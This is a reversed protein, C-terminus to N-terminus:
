LWRVNSLCKQNMQSQTSVYTVFQILRLNSGTQSHWYEWMLGFWQGKKIKCPTPLAILSYRGLKREAKYQEFHWVFQTGRFEGLFFFFFVLLGKWKNEQQQKRCERVFSAEQKRVRWMCAESVSVSMGLFM